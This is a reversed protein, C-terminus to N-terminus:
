GRQDLEQRLEDGAVVDRVRPDGAAPEKRRSRVVEVLRRPARLELQAEQEGVVAEELEGVDEVTGHDSMAGADVDLRRQPMEVRDDVGRPATAGLRLGVLELARPHLDTAPRVVVGEVQGLETGVHCERRHRGVLACLDIPTAAPTKTGVRSRTADSM